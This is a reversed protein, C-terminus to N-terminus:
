YPYKNRDEVTKLAHCGPCLAQLNAESDDHTVHFPIIHDIQYIGDQFRGGPMACKQFPDKCKYDQRDAIRQRTAWSISRREPPVRKRKVSKALLSFEQIRQNKDEIVEDKQKVRRQLHAIKENRDEIYSELEKIRSKLKQIENNAFEQLYDKNIKHLEDKFEMNEKLMLKQFECFQEDNTKEVAELLVTSGIEKIISVAKKKQDKEKNKNDRKRKKNICRQDEPKYKERTIHCRLANLTPYPKNCDPCLLNM